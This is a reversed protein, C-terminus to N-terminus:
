VLRWKVSNLRTQIPVVGRSYDRIRAAYCPTPTSDVGTM